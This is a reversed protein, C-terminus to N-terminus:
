SLLPQLEIPVKERAEFLTTEVFNPRGDFRSGERRYELFAAHLLVDPNRFEDATFHPFAYQPAATWGFDKPSCDTNKLRPEDFQRCYGGCDALM